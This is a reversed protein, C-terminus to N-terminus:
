GGVGDDDLFLWEAMRALLGDRDARPLRRVPGFRSIHDRHDRKSIAKGHEVARLM